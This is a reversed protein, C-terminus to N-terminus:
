DGETGTAAHRPPGAGMSAPVGAARARDGKRWGIRRDKVRRMRRELRDAALDVAVRIADAHERSVVERGRMRLTIEATHRYKEATVVLHAGTIDRAFRGLKQLRRRAFDRVGDDLDCHRATTVIHM